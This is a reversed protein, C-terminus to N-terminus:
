ARWEEGSPGQSQDHKLGMGKPVTRTKAPGRQVLAQGGSQRSPSLGQREKSCQKWFRGTSEKSLVWSCSNQSMGHASVHGRGLQVLPAQGLIPVGRLEQLVAGPDWFGRGRWAQSTEM